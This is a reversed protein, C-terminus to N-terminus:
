PNACNSQRPRKHRELPTVPVTCNPCKTYRDTRDRIMSMAMESSTCLGFRSETESFECEFECDCIQCKASYYIDFSLDIGPKTIKM